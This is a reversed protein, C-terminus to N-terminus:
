GGLIARYVGIPPRDSFQNARLLDNHVENAGNLRMLAARLLPALIKKM